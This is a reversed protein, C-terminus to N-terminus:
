KKRNTASTYAEKRDISDMASQSQRESDFFPHDLAEAATLRESPNVKLLGKILSLGKQCIKGFYKKELKDLNHIEPFKM